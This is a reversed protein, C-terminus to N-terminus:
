RGPPHIQSCRKELPYGSLAHALGFGACADRNSRQDAHFRDGPDRGSFRFSAADRELAFAIDAALRSRDVSGTLFYDEQMYLIHSASIERLATEMNSAWGQDSGVRFVRIWNSRARLRNVILYVPFPCDPWFKRFFFAFPRWADFFRDCSSVVIAVSSAFDKLEAMGCDRQLPPRACAIKKGLEPAVTGSMAQSLASRATFKRREFFVPAYQSRSITPLASPMDLITRQGRLFGLWFLYVCIM